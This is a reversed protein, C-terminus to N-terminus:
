RTVLKIAGRKFAQFHAPFSSELRLLARNLLRDQDKPSHVAFDNVREVRLRRRRTQYQLLGQSEPVYHATLSRRSRAPETTELSGHITKSSWLLVDGQRMAPAHCGLEFKSILEIVLSKYRDHHFAIDFDGGNKAVDIRHSRPYVYFRGAGAHVDELAVWAACMAGLEEADLYYTDQHAWTRPNGDFCMSQVLKPSEGFLVRLARRLAEHTLVDLASRRFDAFQRRPLDQVNLISNLMHGHPSLRHKEPNGSAQRYLHGAYPLVESEFAAVVARCLESPILGRAVLYGREVYYRRFEESGQSPYEDPPGPEAPVFVEAGTPGPVRIGTPEVSTGM